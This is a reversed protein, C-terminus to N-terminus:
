ALRLVRALKLVLEYIINLPKDFLDVLYAALIGVIAGGIIDSPWHLGTAIRFTSVTIAIILFIIGLKKEGSFWFSAAVAFLAAAHDSPFSYTPRHFILEQVGGLNFPRDRHIFNGVIQALIPWAVIISVFARMAVKKSKQDYMWLWIFVIPVSYILYEAFFKNVFGWKQVLHNLYLLITQDISKIINQM